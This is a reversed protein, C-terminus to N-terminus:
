IFVDDPNLPAPAGKAGGGGGPTRWQITAPTHGGTNGSRAPRIWVSHTTM